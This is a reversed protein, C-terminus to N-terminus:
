SSKQEVAHELDSLSDELYVLLRQLHPVSSRCGVIGFDIRDATNTLTINLAQGDLVISMPYNGVLEAGGWYLRDRSGPVNSIVINFPPRAATKLVPILELMMPMSNYASLAVQQVEPLSKFVEKNDNMSANVVKLREAPDSLDTGLNALLSGVENGGSSEGERLSVPVMAILPKDPLANQEILYARLAGGCVALVVDNITVGAVKKIARFREFPWSQAAFRRAGGIPVNFM